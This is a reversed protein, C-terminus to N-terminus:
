RTLLNINTDSNIKWLTMLIVYMHLMISARMARPIYNNLQYDTINIKNKSSCLSYTSM